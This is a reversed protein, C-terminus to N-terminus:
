ESVSRADEILVPYRYGSGFDKDVVVNGEYLMTQGVEPQETTTVTVDHTGQSAEGSGDRLHVFTRGLVGPVVKVVVGRLRVSKGSLDAKKAYIESVTNGSPGAARAVKGIPVEDGGTGPQRHPDSGDPMAPLGSAAASPAGHPSGPPPSGAASGTPGLSGFYIAEFTRNLTSSKFNQMLQADRVAVVDGVDADTKPVATWVDSGDARVLRLYSYSSVDMKEAIKGEIGTAAPEDSAPEAAAASPTPESTARPTDSSRNGLVVALVAAVGIVAPLILTKQNLVPM